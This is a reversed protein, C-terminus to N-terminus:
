DWPAALDVQADGALLRARWDLETRRLVTSARRVPDREELGDNLARVLLRHGIENLVVDVSVEGAVSAVLWGDAAMEGVLEASMSSKGVGGIGQLVVARQQRLAHLCVRRDRRRGVFDGLKRVVIAPDLRPPPPDNIRAALAAPDYLPAPEGLLFITPRAWEAEGQAENQISRRAATLASLAIPEGAETLERYLRAGLETAYTDGVLATMAVVAPVGYAVLQRARFRSQRSAM